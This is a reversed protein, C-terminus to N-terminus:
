EHLNSIFPNFKLSKQIDKYIGLLGLFFGPNEQSEIQKYWFLFWPSLGYDSLQPAILACKLM